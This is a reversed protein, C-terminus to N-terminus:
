DTVASLMLPLVITCRLTASRPSGPWTLSAEWERRNVAHPLCTISNPLGPKAHEVREMMSGPAAVVLAPPVNRRNMLRGPARFDEFILHPTGFEASHTVTM